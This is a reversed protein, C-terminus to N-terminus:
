RGSLLDSGREAAAKVAASTAFQSTTHASDTFQRETVTISDLKAGALQRAIPDIRYRGSPGSAERRNRSKM